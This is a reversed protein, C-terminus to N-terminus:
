YFGGQQMGPNMGMNPMGQPPMQQMGPMGMNPMPQQAYMNPQPYSPGSTIM